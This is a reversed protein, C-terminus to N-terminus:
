SGLDGPDFGKRAMCERLKELARFIRVNVTNRHVDLREAIADTELRGRYRLEVVARQEPNLRATCEALAAALQKRRVRLEPGVDGSPVDPVDDLDAISVLTRKRKREDSLVGWARFKLFARLDRPNGPSRALYAFTSRVVEQVLDDLEGQGVGRRRLEWQAAERTLQALRERAEGDNERARIWLEIEPTHM